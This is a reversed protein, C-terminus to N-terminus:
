RKEKGERVGEGEGHDWVKLQNCTSSGLYPNENRVRRPEIVM